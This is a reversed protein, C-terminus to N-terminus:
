KQPEGRLNHRGKEGERYEGREGGGGEERHVELKWALQVVWPKMNCKGGEIRRLPRVSISRKGPKGKDKDGARWGGEVEGRAVPALKLGIARAPGTRKNKGLQHNEEKGKQEL